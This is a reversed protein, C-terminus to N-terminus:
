GIRNYKYVNGLHHTSVISNQKLPDDSTSATAKSSSYDYLSGQHEEQSKEDCFVLYETFANQVTQVNQVFSM